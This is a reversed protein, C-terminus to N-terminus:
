CCGTPIAISSARCRQDGIPDARDETADALEAVTPVFQAAIPDDPEAPDILEAMDPTLAVTYEAAVRRIDEIRDPEVLGATVLDESGLIRSQVM